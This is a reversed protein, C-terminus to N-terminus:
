IMKRAVLVIRGIVEADRTGFQERKYVGAPYSHVILNGNERSCCGCTYTGDRRLIVYLPQQWPPKKECDDPKKQRRNVVAVLAGALCPHSPGRESHMWFFDKLSPRALGSLTGISGRLFFPIEEFEAVLGSFFGSQSINAPEARKETATAEPREMLGDPVPEHGADELRLGLSDLVTNLRLSYVVCFAVIKHFHRPPTIATDYDSLSGPAIFYREDDLLEAIERSVASAARFSLGTRLRARRLLPGLQSPEPSLAKPTWRQSIDSGLLAQQPRLLSRIELDVTGLLRAQEPVRLDVDVYPLQSSVLAICGSGAPRIRSCCLGHSHEILFLNKSVEGSYETLVDINNTNPKVRVISGPLLEPFALADQQGIKAYLFGGAVLTRLSGLRRATTWELVQSLPIVGASPAGVPLDRLWTIYANPDDLSSDVLITRKSPLQVQLRPILASEFGFVRLWDMLRYGSIQSLAFLQFVSPSFAERRLEYYLSHPVYYPSWRGFQTLSKQSAEYLTLRKSALISKVRDATERNTAPRVNRRVGFREDSSTALHEARRWGSTM